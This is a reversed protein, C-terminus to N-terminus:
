PSLHLLSQSLGFYIALMWIRLSHIYPKRIKRCPRRHNERLAVSMHAWVLNLFRFVGFSTVNFCIFFPPCSLPAEKTTELITFDRVSLDLSCSSFLKFCFSEGSLDLKSQHSMTLRLDTLASSTELLHDVNKQLSPAFKFGVFPVSVSARNQSQFPTGFQSRAKPRM